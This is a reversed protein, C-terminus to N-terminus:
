RQELFDAVDVGIDQAGKRVLANTLYKAYKQLAWNVYSWHM